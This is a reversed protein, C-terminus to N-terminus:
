LLATFIAVSNGKSGFRQERVPADSILPLEFCRGYNNKTGTPTYFSCSAGTKSRVWDLDDPGNWTLKEHHTNAGSSGCFGTSAGWGVGQSVGGVVMDLGNPRMIVPGGSDGDCIRESDGNETLFYTDSNSYVTDIVKTRVKRLHDFPLKSVRNYLNGMGYIDVVDGESSDDNFVRLYDRYTTGKWGNNAIIVAVDSKADGEWFPSPFSSVTEGVPLVSCDRGVGPRMYAIQINALEGGQHAADICHAATVIVRENLM